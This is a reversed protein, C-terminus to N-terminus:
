TFIVYEQKKFIVFGCPFPLCPEWKGLIHAMQQGPQIDARLESETIGTHAPHEAWVGAPVGTANQFMILVARGGGAKHKWKWRIREEQAGHAAVNEELIDKLGKKGEKGGKILGPDEEVPKRRM